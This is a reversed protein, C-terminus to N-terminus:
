ERGGGQVNGVGGTLLGGSDSVEVELSNRFHKPVYCINWERSQAMAQVHQVIRPRANM